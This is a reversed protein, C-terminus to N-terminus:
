TEMSKKHLLTAGSNARFASLSFTCLYLIQKRKRSEKREMNKKKKCLLPTIDTPWPLSRQNERKEQRQFLWPRGVQMSARRETPTRAKSSESRWIREPFFAEGRELSQKAARLPLM